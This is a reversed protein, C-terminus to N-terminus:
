SVENHIYKNNLNVKRVKTFFLYIFFKISEITKIINTEQPNLILVSSDSIPVLCNIVSVENIMEVPELVYLIVSVEM